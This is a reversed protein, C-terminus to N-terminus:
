DRCVYFSHLCVQVQFKASKCRQLRGQLDETKDRLKQEENKSLRYNVLLQQKFDDLEKEKEKCRCMCKKQHVRNSIRAMIVNPLKLSCVHRNQTKVLDQHTMDVQERVLELKIQAKQLIMEHHEKM